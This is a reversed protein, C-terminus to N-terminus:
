QPFQADAEMQSLERVSDRLMAAYAEMEVIEIALAESVSADGATAADPSREMWEITGWVGLIGACACVVMLALAGVPGISRRPPEDHWRTSWDESGTM